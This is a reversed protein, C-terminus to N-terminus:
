RKVQKGTAAAVDSWYSDDSRSACGTMTLAVIVVTAILAAVIVVNDSVRM